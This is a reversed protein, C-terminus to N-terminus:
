PAPESESGMISSSLWPIVCGHGEINFGHKCAISHLHRSNDRVTGPPAYSLTPLHGVQDHFHIVKTWGFQMAARILLPANLSAKVGGTVFILHEEESLYRVVAADLSTFMPGKERPSVLWPGHVSGLSVAISGFVRGGQIPMFRHRFTRCIQDFTKRAGEEGSDKQHNAMVESTWYKDELISTLTQYFGRFDNNFDQVSRDKHVIRKLRLDHGMDNAIVANCRSKLLVGYAAEVLQGPTSGILMKCGILTLKPNLAKMGEIVRPALVFPINITDGVEYGKTEMKGKIPSEPIWNVVAAAMIAADHDLAAAYCQEQYDEFGSQKVVTLDGEWNPDYDFEKRLKILEGEIHLDRDAGSMTDPILLTVSHGANLLHAAFKMAWIGRVRNGVLKNDDLRGYVAGATIFVKM